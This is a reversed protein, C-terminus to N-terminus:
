LLVDILETGKAVCRQLKDFDAALVPKTFFLSLV